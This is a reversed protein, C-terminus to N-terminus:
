GAGARKRQDAARGCCGAAEAPIVRGVLISGVLISAAKMITGGAADGPLVRRPDRRDRLDNIILGLLVAEPAVRGNATHVAM